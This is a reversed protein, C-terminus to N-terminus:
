KAFFEPSEEGTKKHILSFPTTTSEFCRQKGLLPIPDSIIPSFEGGFYVLDIRPISTTKEPKNNIEQMKDLLYRNLKM